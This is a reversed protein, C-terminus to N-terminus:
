DPQVLGATAMPLGSSRGSNKSGSQFVNLRLIQVPDDFHGPLVSGGEFGDMVLEAHRFLLHDCQHSGVHFVGGELHPAFPHGPAFCFM